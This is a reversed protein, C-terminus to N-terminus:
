QIVEAMRMGMKGKERTRVEGKEEDMWLLRCSKVEVESM